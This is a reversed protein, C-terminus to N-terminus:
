FFSCSLLSPKSKTHLSSSSSPKKFFHTFVQHERLYDKVIRLTYYPLLGVYSRGQAIAEIYRMKQGDKPQCM